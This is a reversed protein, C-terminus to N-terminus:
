SVRAAQETCADISSICSRISCFLLCIYPLFSFWLLVVFVFLPIRSCCFFCVLVSVDVPFAHMKMSVGVQFHSAHTNNVDFAAFDYRLADIVIIIVRQFLRPFWCGTRCLLSM